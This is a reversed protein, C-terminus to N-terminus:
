QFKNYLWALLFGTVLGYVAGEAMGAIIGGVSLSYSLLWKQMAEAWSTAMGAKAFLSTVLVCAAKLLALSYGLAYPNLRAKGMSPLQIKTVTKPSRNKTTAVKTTKKSATKKSSTKRKTAKRKAAM